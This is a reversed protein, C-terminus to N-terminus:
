YEFIQPPCFGSTHGGNRSQSCWRLPGCAAEAVEPHGDCCSNCYTAMTVENNWIKFCVYYGTDANTPCVPPNPIYDPFLPSAPILSSFEHAENNNGVDAVYMALSTSISKLNEVCATFQAKSRAKAINPIIISALISIVAIVIMLEILTFGKGKM